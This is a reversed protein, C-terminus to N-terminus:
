VMSEIDIIKSIGDDIRYRGCMKSALKLFQEYISLLAATLLVRKKLMWLETEVGLDNELAGLLSAGTIHCNENILLRYWVRYSNLPLIHHNFCVIRITSSKKIELTAHNRVNWKASVQKAALTSLHIIQIILRVQFYPIYRYFHVLIRFM